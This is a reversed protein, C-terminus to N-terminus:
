EHRRPAVGGSPGVPRGPRCGRRRGRVRRWRLAQLLWRPLSGISRRQLRRQLLVRVSGRGRRVRARVSLGGVCGRLGRSVVRGSRVRPPAWGAGGRSSTGYAVPDVAAVVVVAVTVAVVRSTVEPAGVRRASLPSPATGTGLLCPRQGPVGVSIAALAEGHTSRCPRRTRRGVLPDHSRRLNRARQDFRGGPSM